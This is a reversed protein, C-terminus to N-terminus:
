DCLVRHTDGVHIAEGGPTVIDKEMGLFEELPVSIKYVLDLASVSSSEVVDSIEKSSSIYWNPPLIYWVYAVVDGRRGDRTEHGRGNVTFTFGNPFGKVLIVSIIEPIMARGTGRCFSCKTSAPICGLGDCSGCTTETMSDYKHSPSRYIHKAVGSGNCLTCKRCLGEHGGTGSCHHCFGQRFYTQNLTVGQFVEDIPVALNVVVSPIETAPPHYEFHMKIRKSKIFTKFITKTYRDEISSPQFNYDIGEFSLDYKMRRDPDSIIHYAEQLALFQNLKELKEEESANLPIKDPHLELARIRYSKKVDQDNADKRVGLTDYHNSHCFIIPGLFTCFSFMFHLTFSM